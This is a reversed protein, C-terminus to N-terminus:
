TKLFKLLSFNVWNATQMSEKTKTLLKSGLYFFSKVKKFKNKKSNRAM